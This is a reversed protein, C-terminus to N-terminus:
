TNTDIIDWVDIFNFLWDRQKLTLRDKTNSSYLLDDASYKPLNQSDCWNSYVDILFLMQKSM